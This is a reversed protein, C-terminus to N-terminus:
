QLVSGVDNATARGEKSYYLVLKKNNQLTELVLLYKPCVTKHNKTIVM